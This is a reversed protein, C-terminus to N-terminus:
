VSETQFSFSFRQSL